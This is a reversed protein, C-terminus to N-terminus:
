YPKNRFKNRHQFRGHGSNGRSNGGGGGGGRGGYNGGRGRGRFSTDWSYRTGARLYRGGRPNSGYNRHAQADDREVWEKRKFSPGPPQVTSPSPSSHSDSRTYICTDMLKTLSDVLAAYGRAPMHVPDDKFLDMFRRTAEEAEEEGVLMM